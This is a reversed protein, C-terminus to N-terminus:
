LLITNEFSQLQIEQLMVIESKSYTIAFWNNFTQSEYM